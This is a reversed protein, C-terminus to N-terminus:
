EIEQQQQRNMWGAIAAVLFHWATWIVPSFADRKPTPPKSAAPPPRRKL